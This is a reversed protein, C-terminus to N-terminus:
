HIPASKHDYRFASDSRCLYTGDYSGDRVRIFRPPRSLLLHGHYRSARNRSLLQIPSRRAPVVDNGFTGRAGLNWSVSLYAPEFYFSFAKRGTWVFLFRGGRLRPIESLARFARARGVSRPNFVHELDRNRWLLLIEIQSGPAQLDRRQHLGKKVSGHLCGPWAKAQRM